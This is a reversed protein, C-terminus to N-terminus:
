KAVRLVDNRLFGCSMTGLVWTSRGCSMTGAQGPPTVAPCQEALKYRADSALSSGLTDSSSSRLSATRRRRAPSLASSTARLSPRVLRQTLFHAGCVEGVRM